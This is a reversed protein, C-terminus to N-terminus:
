GCSCNGIIFSSGSIKWVQGDRHFYWERPYHSKISSGIVVRVWDNSEQILTVTNNATRLFENESIAPYEEPYGDSCKKSYRKNDFLSLYFYSNKNDLFAKIEKSSYNTDTCTLGQTTSIFEFFRKTDKQLIASRIEKAAILINERDRASLPATIKEDQGAFSWTVHFIFFVAAIRYFNM